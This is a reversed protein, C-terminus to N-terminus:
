CSAFNRRLKGAWTLEPLIGMKQAFCTPMIPPVVINCPNARIISRLGKLGHGFDSFIALISMSALFKYSESKLSFPVMSDFFELFDITTNKSKPKKNGILLLCNLIQCSNSNSIVSSKM